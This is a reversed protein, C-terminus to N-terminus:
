PLLLKFLNFDDCIRHHNSCLTTGNDLNTKLNPFQAKSLIHHAEMLDSKYGCIQCTFDDRLKVRFAWRTHSNGLKRFGISKDGSKIKEIRESVTM